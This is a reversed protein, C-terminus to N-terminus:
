QRVEFDQAMDHSVQSIYHQTMTIPANYLASLTYAKINGIRTPNRSLCEMVYRIHERDLKLLRSKVLDRPMDEQNVRIYKRQTCCVEVILEVYGDILERDYPYEELLYEYGINERITERYLDIEDMRVRQRGRGVDLCNLPHPPYISETDSFETNNMDTNNSASIGCDVSREKPLRSQPMESTLPEFPPDSKPKESTLSECPLDSKPEASPLSENEQQLVFNKVYIKTPKGQGQKKREILGIGGNRDLEKFIKVMKDKGFGLFEIADELTFYIYVKGDSDLWGNRISLNMRDLMLGYLVKAEMSLAKYRRDTFLIKPIRYFSFQEAENGYFYDLNLAKM